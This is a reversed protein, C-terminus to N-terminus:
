ALKRGLIKEAMQRGIVEADAAAQARGRGLEEQVRARIQEAARAAEERVEVVILQATAVAERRIEEKAAEGAERAQAIGGEYELQLRRGDEALIQAEARVGETRKERQEMLAMLPRFLLRALIAWLLLFFLAQIFITYDLTIM